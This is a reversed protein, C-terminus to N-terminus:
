ASKEKDQAFLSSRNADQFKKSDVMMGTYIDFYHLVVVGPKVGCEPKTCKVEIVKDDLHLRGYLRGNACRLSVPKSVSHSWSGMLLSIM